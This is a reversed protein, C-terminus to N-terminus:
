TEGWAPTISYLINFGLFICNRLIANNKARLSNDWKLIGMLRLHFKFPAFSEMRLLNKKLKKWHLNWHLSNLSGKTVSHPEWKIHIEELYKMLYLFGVQIKLIISEIQTM